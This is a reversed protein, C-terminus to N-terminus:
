QNKKNGRENSPLLDCITCPYPFLVSLYLYVYISILSNHASDHIETLTSQSKHGNKRNTLANKKLTLCREDTVSGQYKQKHNICRCRLCCSTQFLLSDYQILHREASHTAKISCQCDSNNHILFHAIKRQQQIYWAWLQNWIIQRLPICSQASACFNQLHGFLLCSLCTVFIGRAM